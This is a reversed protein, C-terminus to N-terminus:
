IQIAVFFHIIFIDAKVGRPAEADKLLTWLAGLEKKEAGTANVSVLQLQERLGNLKSRNPAKGGESSDRVQEASRGRLSAACARRRTPEDAGTEAAAMAAALADSAAYLADELAQLRRKAGLHVM